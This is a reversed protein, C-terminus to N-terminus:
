KYTYLLTKLRKSDESSKSYFSYPVSLLQTVGTITYLVGGLPDTETKIFYQDSGWDISALSGLSINGGGIELSALGNINTTPNHTEVFVENGSISGQLVSIRVGVSQNAVLANNANRVVFQYSMKAPTQSFMSFYNIGSFSMLLISKLVIKNLMSSNLVEPLKNRSKLEYIVRIIFFKIKYLVNLFMKKCTSKTHESVIELTTNKM